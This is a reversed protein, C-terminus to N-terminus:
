YHHYQRNQYRQNREQRQQQQGQMGRSGAAPSDINHPRDVGLLSGGSSGQVGPLQPGAGRSGAVGSRGASSPPPATRGVRGPPSTASPPPGGSLLHSVALQEEEEATALALSGGAAWGPQAGAPLAGHFVPTVGPRGTLVSGGAPGGRTFMLLVEDVIYAASPVAAVEVCGEEQQAQQAACAQQQVGADRWLSAPPPPVLSPERHLAAQTPMCTLRPNKRPHCSPPAPHATRSNSIEVESDEEDQKYDASESADSEGADVEEEQLGPQWCDDQYRAPPHRQRKGLGGAQAAGMAAATFQKSTTHKSAASWLSLGQDQHQQEQAAQGQGQRQGPEFEAEAGRLKPTQRRARRTAATEQRQQEQPAQQAEEAQQRQSEQPAQQAEQQAQHKFFLGLNHLQQHQEQSLLSPLQHQEQQVLLLEQQQEQQQSSLHPQPLQGEVEERAQQQEQQQQQSLHRVGAQEQALQQEDLWDGMEEKEQQQQDKGAQEQALQQEDLWDGMEEKEQQQQDKGAQEQQEALQEDRCEPMDEEEEEKGKSQQQLQQQDAQQQPEAQQQQDAQQQEHPGELMAEQQRQHQHQHQHQDVDMPWGDAQPQEGLLQGQQVGEGEREKEEGEEEEEVLPQELELGAELGGQQGSAEPGERDGQRITGGPPTAVGTGGDGSSGSATPNGAPWVGAVFQAFGPRWDESMGPGKLLAAVHRRELLANASVRTSGELYAMHVPGAGSDRLMPALVHVNFNKNQMASGKAAVMAEQAVVVLEGTGPLRFLRRGCSRGQVEVQAKCVLPLRHWEDNVPQSGTVPCRKRAQQQGRKRKLLAPTVRSCPGEAAPGAVAAAPSARVRARGLRAECSNALAAGAPPPVAGPPAATRLLVHVTEEICRLELHVQEDAAPAREAVLGEVAQQQQQQQQQQLHQPPQPPPPPQQHQHRRRQEAQQEAQQEKRQQQEGEQAWDHLHSPTICAAQPGSGYRAAQSAGALWRTVREDAAEDCVALHKLHRELEACCQQAAEWCPKIFLLPPRLQAAPQLVGAAPMRGRLVEVVCELCLHRWSSPQQPAADLVATALYCTERCLTCQVSNREHQSGAACAPQPKTGGGELVSRFHTLRRMMSVFTHALAKDSAAAAAAATPVANARSGTAATATASATRTSLSTNTSTSADSAGRAAEAEQSSKRRAALALAEDCLLQEQPLISPHRLRRYRQRADEAYPWWDGLSFNVAEGVNFGNGFGSHYARPFTIVYDGPEQVARCVRVGAQLLIRPSFMTTKAMLAREVACWVQGEGAGQAELAACARAYVTNRAATEFADAASAPVGYWTKSAGLHQYNISYMFHDEVHWAFTSFLQGAYLMPTSVGPIAHPGTAAADAAAAASFAAGAAAPPDHFPANAATPAAADAAPAADATAPTPGSGACGRLASGPELPLTNLNWRSRGLRDQPLFLSGEVDNGYEVTLPTGHHRERERWYEREIYRAPLCGHLGGFRKAANACAVDQFDKLGYRKGPQFVCGQWDHWPTDRVTQLRTDFKFGPDQTLMALGGAITPALPSRVICIGSEAAEDQISRIYALPDRWEEETPQYVPAPKVSDMWADEEEAADAAQQAAEVLAARKEAARREREQKNHLRLQDRTVKVTITKAKAQPAEM